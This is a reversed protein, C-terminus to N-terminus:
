FSRIGVVTITVVPCPLTLSATSAMRIPAVVEEGLRRVRLVETQQHLSGEAFTSQLVFHTRASAEVRYVHMRELVHQATAPLHNVDELQNAVNGVRVGGDDNVTLGSGTLLLDRSRNM